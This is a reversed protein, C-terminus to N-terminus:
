SMLRLAALLVGYMLLGLLGYGQLLKMQVSNGNLCVALVGVSCPQGLSTSSSYLSVCPTPSQFLCVRLATVTRITNAGCNQILTRPIVELARSIARYPWQEVGVVQKAKENLAQLSIILRFTVFLTLVRSSPFVEGDEIYVFGLSSNVDM